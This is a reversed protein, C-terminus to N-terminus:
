GVFPGPFSPFLYTELIFISETEYICEQRRIHIKLNHLYLTHPRVKKHLARQQYSECIVKPKM